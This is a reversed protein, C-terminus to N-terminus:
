VSFTLKFADIAIFKLTSYMVQGLSLSAYIGNYFSTSRTTTSAVETWYSLWTSSSIRFVEVM